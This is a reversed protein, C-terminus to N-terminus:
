LTYFTEPSIVVMSSLSSVGARRIPSTARRVPTLTAV